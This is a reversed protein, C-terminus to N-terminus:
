PRSTATWSDLGSKQVFLVGSRLGMTWTSFLDKGRRRTEHLDFVELLPFSAFQSGFMSNQSLSTFLPSSLFPLVPSFSTLRSDIVLSVPSQVARRTATTRNTGRVRTTHEQEQCTRRSDKLRKTDQAYCCPFRPSANWRRQLQRHVLLTSNTVTLRPCSDRFSFQMRSVISLLLLPEAAPMM